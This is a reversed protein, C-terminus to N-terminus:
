LETSIGNRSLCHDFNNLIGKIGAEPKQPDVLRGADGICYFGEEDFASATAEPNRWYGPTVMPGRLRLETKSDDSVLKIEAGSVPAGLNSCHVNDPSTISVVPSTETSGWGIYVKFDPRGFRAGFEHLKDWTTQPLAAGASFIARLRSYFSRALAEDSSMTRVLESLASPVSLHM